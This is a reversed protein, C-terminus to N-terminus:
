IVITCPHNKVVDAYLMIQQKLQKSRQSRYAQYEPTKLVQEITYIVAEPESISSGFLYVSRTPTEAVREILRKQAETLRYPPKDQYAWKGFLIWKAFLDAEAQGPELFINRGVETDIGVGSLLYKLDRRKMDRLQVRGSSADVLTSRFLESLASPLAHPRIRRSGVAHILRRLAESEKFAFSNAVWWGPLERSRALKRNRSESLYAQTVQVGDVEDYVRHMFTFPTYLSERDEHFRPLQDADTPETIFNCSDPHERSHEIVLKRTQGAWRDLRPAWSSSSPPRLTIRVPLPWRRFAREFRVPAVKSFLYWQSRDYDKRLKRDPVEYSALPNYRSRSM